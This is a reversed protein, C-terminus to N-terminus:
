FNGEWTKPTDREGLIYEVCVVDGSLLQDFEFQAAREPKLNPFREYINAGPQIRSIEGCIALHAIHITRSGEWKFPDSTFGPAIADPALHALMVYRGPDHGYGSRLLESLERQSKPDWRWAMASVHTGEDRIQIAKVDRIM